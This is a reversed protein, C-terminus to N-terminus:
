QFLWVRVQPYAFRDVLEREERLRAVAAKTAQVNEPKDRFSSLLFVREADDPVGRVLRGKELGPAYYQIVNNLVEPDYVVVDGPEAKESIESLAGEFDYVRPNSGNLQQDVLGVAMTAAVLGGLAWRGLATNPWESVAAAILLVMLPVAALGYRLEFLFPKAIGIATLLLAPVAVCAVLLYGPRSRGRGLVLLALLILMPWLATLRAMTADSHYGWLAWIGNTLAGYVSVQADVAGGAAAPQSFGKGAAENAMFQDLAFPVLPAVAAVLAVSAFVGGTVLRRISDRERRLRLAMVVIAVQLVIVILAAFYHTWVMAAAALAYVTWYRFRETEIAQHLAWVAVVALLMLQAYMRAEESYWVLVPALTGLTAAILGTRRDFLARGAVFLMPVLAAGAIMSPLRLAVESDGFARVSLWVLAHHGPPHVDTTRLDHLLVDFPLQSQYWTTAEDLWLSRDALLRLGVGAAVLAALLAPARWRPPAPVSSAPAEFTVTAPTRVLRLRAVEAGALGVTLVATSILTAYAVGSASDGIAFLLGLQLAAVLAIGASVGRAGAATANAALVRAVGLLAMALLYPAALEALSGYREGFTLELLQEPAILFPIIAAGGLLAAAWIAARLAGRDGARAQPLLVLPVTTTAFAAIGGLTSLVAFRAAEFGGLTANAFVVDQAQIVALFLFAVVAARSREVAREDPAPPAEAEVTRGALRAVMYAVLSGAVVGLAAGVAGWSLALAVGGTLRVAPEAVLTATVMRHRREGFLRGRELALLGALPPTTALIAVLEVPLRLAAAFPIGAALVAASGLLGLQLTRRRASATLEPTLASGASLSRAPLYILLFLALFAALEAFAGPALLRAAVLAFAMNGVGSVLQGGAVLAQERAAGRGLAPLRPLARRIAITTSL